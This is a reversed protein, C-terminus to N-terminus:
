HESCQQSFWAFHPIQPPPNPFKPHLAVSKAPAPFSVISITHLVAPNLLSFRHSPRLNGKLDQWPSPMHEEPTGRWGGMMSKGRLLVRTGCVHNTTLSCLVHYAM